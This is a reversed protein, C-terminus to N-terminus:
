HIHFTAAIQHRQYYVVLTFVVLGMVFGAVRQTSVNRPKPTIDAVSRRERLRNMAYLVVALLMASFIAGQITM